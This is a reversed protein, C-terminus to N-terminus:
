RRSSRTLKIILEDSKRGVVTLTGRAMGMKQHLIDMVGTLVKELDVSSNLAESIEHLVKLEFVDPNPSDQMETM